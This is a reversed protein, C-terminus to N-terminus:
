SVEIKGLDVLKKILGDSVPARLRRRIFTLDYEIANDSAAALMWLGVLVWREAPTMREMVDYDGLTDGYLKIWRPKLCQKKYHQYREWKVVHICEPM